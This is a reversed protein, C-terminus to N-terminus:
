SHVNFLAATLDVPDSNLYLARDTTQSTERADTGPREAVN